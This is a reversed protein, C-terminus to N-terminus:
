SAAIQYTSPEFLAIRDLNDSWDNRQAWPYPRRSGSNESRGYDQTPFVGSYIQVESVDACIERPM